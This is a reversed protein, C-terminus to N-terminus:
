FSYAKKLTINLVITPILFFITVWYIKRIQSLQYHHQLLGQDEIWWTWFIPCFGTLFHLNWKRKWKLFLIRFHVNCFIGCRLWRKRPIGNHNKETWQWFAFYLFSTNTNCQLLKMAHFSIIYVCLSVCIRKLIFVLFMAIVLNRKCKCNRCKRYHFVIFVFSNCTINSIFLIGKWINNVSIHYLCQFFHIIGVVTM